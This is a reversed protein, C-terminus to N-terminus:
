RGQGLRPRVIEALMEERPIGAELGRGARPRASQWLATASAAVFVAAAAVAARRLFPRLDLVVGGGSRIGALVAERLGAPAPADAPGGRERLRAGVAELLAAEAGCAGCAEGHARVADADGPAAEGDRLRGLAKRYEECHTM